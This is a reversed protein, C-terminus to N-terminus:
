NHIILLCDFDASTQRSGIGDADSQPWARLSSILAPKQIAVRASDSMKRTGAYKKSSVTKGRPSRRNTTMTTKHRQKVTAPRM